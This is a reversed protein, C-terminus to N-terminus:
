PKTSKAAIASIVTSGGRRYRFNSMIRPRGGTMLGVCNNNYGDVPCARGESLASCDDCVLVAAGGAGAQLLGSGGIYRGCLNCNDASM